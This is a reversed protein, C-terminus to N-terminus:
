MEITLMKQVQVLFVANRPLKVATFNIKQIKVAVISLYIAFIRRNLLMKSM